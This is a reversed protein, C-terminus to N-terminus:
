SDTARGASSGVRQLRNIIFRELFDKLGEVEVEFDLYFLNEAPELKVLDKLTTIYLKEKQLKFGKYRYHDPFGITGDLKVGMERLTQFFQENDGLGCFAIFSLKSYDEVVKNDVSRILKWKTRYMKFTPKHPHKWEFNELEGYSLVLIDAREMCEIPERLRGFPLIKDSFDRKRLLLINLDRHIKRHQFGDDLIILEPSLEKIAFSVGRCRDEDVLVSVRPLVKALMFPEDGADEWSALLEGWRSLLLTGRTRRKYGRSVVCVRLSGSLLSALYRVLSSKGSGGVSLNGVSIVLIPPKCQAIIGKDYAWNRLKIVWLYPNLNELVRSGRQM